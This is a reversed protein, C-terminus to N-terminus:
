SGYGLSPSSTDRYDVKVAMMVLDLYLEAGLPDAAATLSPPTGPDQGALTRALLGLLNIASYPLAM